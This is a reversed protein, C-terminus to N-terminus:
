TRLAPDECLPSWTPIKPRRGGTYSATYLPVESMLFHEGGQVDRVFRLMPRRFPGVLHIRKRIDPVGTPHTPTSSPRLFTHSRTLSACRYYPPHSTSYVHLPPTACSTTLSFSPATPARPPSPICYTHFIAGRPHNQLPCVIVSDRKYLPVQNMLFPECLFCPLKCTRNESHHLLNPM